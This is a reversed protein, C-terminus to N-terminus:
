LYARYWVSIQAQLTELHAADVWGHTLGPVVDLKLRQVTGAKEYLPKLADHLNTAVQPTLMADEAGHIIMLAPLPDAATIDDVRAVADSRRDLERSADTWQYSGKTAREYAGVSACLGTSANLTVAVSVAVKAEALAYLVAAGGASFGFLGISAGHEMCEHRELAQVISPLEEAAGMVVPGFVLTGLDEKQRRALEGAAPARSGFMPL